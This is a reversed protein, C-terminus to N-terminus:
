TRWFAPNFLAVLVLTELRGLAMSAVLIYKATASLGALSIPEAAAHAALPGTNTLTAIALILATEFDAGAASLALMIVAMSIGLLMFVIWAIYAGERRIHRAFRGSGGVSSPYVLRGIEREGHKLLAYIRLLKVGGATTSVGGGMIALGMLLLGPAEIGSWSRAALWDASAFGTTTLFSLATFFTGWLARFAANFGLTDDIQVAALYHRLFLGISIVAVVGAALRLEPDQRLDRTADGLVGEAFTRRSLAFLLFVAIIAEGVRGAAANEVGGTASFGATAITSMAHVCAVLPDEGVVLLTVFLALTLGGYIPALHGGARLLRDTAVRDVGKQIGLGVAPGRQGAVEYGGLGMPAFLAVAASWMLLGGSWAVLARWLHEAESLRGPGDYVTAGTTTMASVMEFYANTYSTDGLSARFPIALVLPLLLFAGLLGLLQARVQHRPDGNRTVIGIMVTVTLTLVSAQVFAQASPYDRYNAAVIAPVLMLLGGMGSLVVLIPLSNLAARM